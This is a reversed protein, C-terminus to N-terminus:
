TARHVCTVPVLDSFQVLVRGSALTSALVLAAALPVSLLRLLLPWLSPRSARVTFHLLHASFRGPELQRGPLPPPPALFALGRLSCKPTSPFSPTQIRNLRHAWPLTKAFLQIQLDPIFRVGINVIANNICGGTSAVFGLHGDVSSRIFIHYICIYTYVCVFHLIAWGYFSCFRAM